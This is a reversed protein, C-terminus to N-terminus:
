MFSLRCCSYSFASKPHSKFAYCRAARWSYASRQWHLSRSSSILTVAQSQVANEITGM